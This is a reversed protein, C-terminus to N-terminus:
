TSALETAYRQRVREGLAAFPLTCDASAHGTEARNKRCGGMCMPLYTCRHCDDDLAPVDMWDRFRDGEWVIEGGEDLYGLREEPTFESVTCKFVDGRHNFLFQSARDAYCYTLKGPNLPTTTVSFGLKRATDYVIETQLAIWEPSRGIFLHGQDFLRELVPHLRGRIEVPFRELLEPIRGITTADFNVRLKINARPEYEALHCINTFIREFSDGPGKLLRRQNHIEPPGDMTIQYSLLDAACLEAAREANLLYGNTTIHSNFGVAARDCIEHVARQLRLVTEFSLLPEGGFWSLLVVKFRPVMEEFWAIIRREVEDDIRSAYHSEYCYPCAFNCNMNPLLFVDLRNPDVIGLRNREIVKAVEDEERSIAFGQEALLDLLGPALDASDLAGASFMEVERGLGSPLAVLAGSATNFVLFEGTEDYRTILNFQSARM